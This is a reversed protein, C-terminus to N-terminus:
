QQRDAHATLLVAALISPESAAPRYEARNAGLEAVARLWSEDTVPEDVLRALRREAGIGLPVGLAHRAESGLTTYRPRLHRPAAGLLATIRKALVARRRAGARSLSRMAQRAERHQWWNKVAARVRSAPAHDPEAAIGAVLRALRFVAGPETTPGDGADALLLRETGLAVLALFGDVPARVSAFAPAGDLPIDSISDDRWSELLSYVASSLEPSAETADPEVNPLATGAVGVLRAAIGLKARLRGEVELVRESRAPPALMYVIVSDHRAGLRRIRGVRQELRAPNWPLDLHVIVSALQLDLGESLVDTTVLLSIREADAVRAGSAPSFQALVDTRALRGGVVRAGRATLEAVGPERPMLSRSIARVTEAYHSFAIIRAGPHRRRVDGLAAARAPDPDTGDRLRGLLTRVADVHGEVGHLLERQRSANDDGLSLLLEPLALQLVDDTRSWAALEHRTPLRGSELAAMLAIGTALRRRLGAVLAARSSSWQRLLTYRVLADAYGEDALPLPPPLAILDDLIDDEVPLTIWSPGILRPLRVAADGARQRVIFRTLDSDTIAFAADGLFLALQAVLDDRRNQVPTASLLLVRARDCLEAVAGYRKTLPNRLHHSEDVIVLEPPPDLVVTTRSLRELSVLMAGTRTQELARSWVDRVAAPCTIFVHEFGRVAALAVFTKGLGTADALLAGGHALLLRRVRTVARRQHPHLTIDGLVLPAHHADLLERAILARVAALM